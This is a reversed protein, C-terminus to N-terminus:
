RPLQARPLRNIRALPGPLGEETNSPPGVPSPAAALPSVSSPHVFSTTSSRCAGSTSWTPRWANFNLRAVEGMIRLDRPQASRTDCRFVAVAVFAREAFLGQDPFRM